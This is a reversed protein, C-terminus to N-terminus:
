GELGTLVAKGPRFSFSSNVAGERCGVQSDFSGDLAQDNQRKRLCPMEM